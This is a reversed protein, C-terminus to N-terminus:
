RVISSFRELTESDSRQYWRASRMVFRRETNPNLADALGEFTQVPFVFGSMSSREGEKSIRILFAKKGDLGFPDYTVLAKGVFRDFEQRDEPRCSKQLLAIVKRANEIEATSPPEVAVLYARDVKYDYEALSLCRAYENEQLFITLEKKLDILSDAPNVIEYPMQNPPRTFEYASETKEPMFNKSDVLESLEFSLSQEKAYEQMFASRNIVGFALMALVVGLAMYAKKESIKTM